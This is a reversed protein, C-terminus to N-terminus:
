DADLRGPLEARSRIGLKRYVKSLNWQVTKPSIFLEAATERYTRGAAIREAVALETPTLGESPPRGGVRALEADVKAVWLGAGLRHFERGAAHLAERADAKKRDRRQISGHALLTRAREFPQGVHDDGLASEVRRAGAAVDGAAARLLGGCRASILDIWPRRLVRGLEELDSLMAAADDLRGLAIKAEIADGHYRFIAPERLGAADASAALTGLTREADEFRNLSLELFGRTALLELEAPRVGLRTAVELGDAIPVTASEVRGAHADVLAEIACAYARESVQGNRVSIEM